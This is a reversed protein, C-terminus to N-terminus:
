IFLKEAEAKDIFRSSSKLFVAKCLTLHFAVRSDKPIEEFIKLNEEIIQRNGDEINVYIFPLLIYSSLMPNGLKISATFSENM